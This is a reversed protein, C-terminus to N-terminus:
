GKAAQLEPEEYVSYITNIRLDQRSKSQNFPRFSKYDITVQPAIKFTVEFDEAYAVGAQNFVGWWYSSHSTAKPQITGIEIWRSEVPNGHGDRVNADWIDGTDDLNLFLRVTIPVDSTNTVKLESGVYGGGDTTGHMDWLKGWYSHEIKFAPGEYVDTKRDGAVGQATKIDTKDTLRDSVTATRDCM